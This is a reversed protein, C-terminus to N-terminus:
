QVMAARVVEKQIRQQWALHEDYFTLSMFFYKIIYTNDIFIAYINKMWVKFRLKLGSINRM